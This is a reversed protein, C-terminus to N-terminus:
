VHLTLAEDFIESCRLQVRDSAANLIAEVNVASPKRGRKPCTTFELVGVVDEGANTKAHVNLDHVVGCQSARIIQIEATLPNHIEALM